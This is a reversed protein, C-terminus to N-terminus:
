HQDNVLLGDFRRLHVEDVLCPKDLRCVKGFVGWNSNLEGSTPPLPGFNSGAFREKFEGLSLHDTECLIGDMNRHHLSAVGTSIQESSNGTLTIRQMGEFNREARCALAQLNVPLDSRIIRELFIAPFNFRPIVNVEYSLTTSSSSCLFWHFIYFYSGSNSLHFQGPLQIFHANIFLVSLIHHNCILITVSWNYCIM